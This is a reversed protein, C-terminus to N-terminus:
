DTSKIVLILGSKITIRATPGAFCNSVGLTSGQVLTKDTLPYELGELTLGTVKDSVPIISLLEGPTGRIIIESGTLHIENHADMIRGKVGRDLLTRLLFVNALTHDLRHGTVGTLIIERSGRDIAHTICLETDTSDKRAPYRHVPINKLSFFDEAEVSISDLDGIIGHPCINLEHLHVAGGDAALILDASHLQSLIAPTPIFNGNAVIVSKMASSYWFLFPNFVPLIISIGMDRRSVPARLKYKGM